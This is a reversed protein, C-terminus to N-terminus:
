QRSVGLARAPNNRSVGKANGPPLAETTTGAAMGATMTDVATIADTVAIMIGTVAIMHVTATMTITGSTTGMGSDMASAIRRFM